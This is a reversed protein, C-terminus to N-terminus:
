PVSKSSMGAGMNRYDHPDMHAPFHLPDDKTKQKVAGPGCGFDSYIAVIVLYSEKEM